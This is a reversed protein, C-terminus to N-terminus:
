AGHGDDWHSAVRGLVRADLSLRGGGTLVLSLLIASWFLPYEGGHHNWFWGSPLTVAAAVLVFLLALAASIRTWAGIVVLTGLLAQLLALVFPIPASSPLGFGQLEAAFGTIGPGGFWGFLKALGHPVLFGGAVVRQLLVGIDSLADCRSGHKSPLSHAPPM